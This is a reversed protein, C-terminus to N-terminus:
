QLQIINTDSIRQKIRDFTEESLAHEVKCADAVAVSDEVGLALFLDTLIKHREDMERAIKEGTETLHFHGREDKTVYNDSVLQRLAFTISAKSYDMHRALDVNRVYGLKQQVRLIWKLYEEASAHITKM